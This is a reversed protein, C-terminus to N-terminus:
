MGLDSLAEKIEFETDRLKEQCFQLLEKSRKVKAALEDVPVVDEQISELIEKLETYAKEYTLKKAM